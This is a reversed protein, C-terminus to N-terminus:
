AAHDTDLLERVRADPVMQFDEYFSGVARPQLSTHLVVVEDVMDALRDITVAPSVPVALVVTRIGRARLARVAAMAALGDTLGDDVLIATGDAPLELRGGARLRRRRRTLTIAQRAAEHAIATEPVRHQWLQEHDLHPDGDEAIAGVICHRLGPARLRRVLIADLPLRLRRAVTAAAVMGGNSMGLVVTAPQARHAPLRDALALGASTRDLFAPIPRGHRDSSPAATADTVVEESAFRM